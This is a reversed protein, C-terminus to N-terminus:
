EKDMNKEKVHIYELTQHQFTIKKPQAQLFYIDGLVTLEREGKYTM